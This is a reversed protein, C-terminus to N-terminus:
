RGQTVCFAYCCAIPSNRGALVDDLEPKLETTAYQHMKDIEDKTPKTKLHMADQLFDGFSDYDNQKEVELWRQYTTDQTRLAHILGVSVNKIQQDTMGAM